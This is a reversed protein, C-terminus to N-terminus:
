SVLVSVVDNNLSSFYNPQSGGGMNNKCFLGKAYSIWFLQFQVAKSFNNKASLMFASNAKLLDNNGVYIWLM